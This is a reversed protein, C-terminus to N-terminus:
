RQSYLDVVGVGAQGPLDRSKSAGVPLTADESAADVPPPNVVNNERWGAATHAM